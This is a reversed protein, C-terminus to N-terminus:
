PGCCCCFFLVPVCVPLVFVLFLVYVCLTPVFQVRLSCLLVVAGFVCVCVYM